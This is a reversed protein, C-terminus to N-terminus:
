PEIIERTEVCVECGDEGKCDHDAFRDRVMASSEELRGVVDVLGTLAENFQKIEKEM